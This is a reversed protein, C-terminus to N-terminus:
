DLYLLCYLGQPRPQTVRFMALRAAKNKLRVTEPIHVVMELTFRNLSLWLVRNILKRSLTKRSAKFVRAPLCIMLIIICKNGEILHCGDDSDSDGIEIVEM